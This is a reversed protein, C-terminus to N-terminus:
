ENNEGKLPLTIIFEAGKKNRNRAIITGDHAKIVSECIALGLGVGKEKDASQKAFSTYFSQFINPLDKKSIGSGEDYVIIQINTNDELIKIGVIDDQKTHKVANDLLNVLVQNILKADIEIFLPKESLQVEIIRNSYRKEIIAISVGIIDDISEITKNMTLKGEQIRTLNLINEVLSHLWEASENIEKSLNYKKEDDKSIDMLIESTGIIGSLPTRLDHSISRLLNSRYKEQEANTRIRSEEQSLIFGEMAISTSEIISHLLRKQYETLHKAKDIPIRIVAFIKKNNRIPYNFYESDEDHDLLLNNMRKKLEELNDISIRVQENNNKQQIYSKEPNGKEDFCICNSLCGFSDSVIKVAFSAIDDVSEADALRNSLQYLASSEKEKEKAVIAIQQLKMTLISTITSTIVMVAFTVIYGYNYLRFTYYPITFFFNYLFISLISGIIGYIYNRTFVSIFFVFLIYIIVINTELIEVKSFIFGIITAMTLLIIMIVINILMNFIKINNKKFKYLM